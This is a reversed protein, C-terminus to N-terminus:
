QLSELVTEASKFKAIRVTGDQHCCLTKLDEIM